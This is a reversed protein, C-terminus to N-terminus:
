KTPDSELNRSGSKPNLWSRFILVHAGHAHMRLYIRGYVGDNFKLFYTREFRDKWMDTPLSAPMAIVEMPLYGGLPAEFSFDGDRPAIGGNPVSVEFRWDYKQGIDAGEDDTKCTVHITHSGKGDPHLSIIRPTGNREIRLRTEPREILPELVGAKYLLFIVPKDRRPQHIGDGSNKGYSFGGQSAPSGRKEPSRYYGEKTVDVFLSLGKIGSISFNGNTDSVRQFTSGDGWPKDNASLKVSAGSVPAGYQDIVRGYFTIPAAFAALFKAEQEPRTGPNTRPLAAQRQPPSAMANRSSEPALPTKVLQQSCRRAVLLVFAIAALLVITFSTRNM